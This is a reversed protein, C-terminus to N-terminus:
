RPSRPPSPVVAQTSNARRRFEERFWNIIQIAAAGIFASIAHSRLGSEGTWTASFMVLVIVLFLLGWISHGDRKPRLKELVMVLLLVAVMLLILGLFPLTEALLYM